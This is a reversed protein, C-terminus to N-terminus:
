KLQIELTNGSRKIDMKAGSLSFGGTEMRNDPGAALESLPATVAFAILKKERDILVPIVQKMQLEVGARFMVKIPVMDYIGSRQTIQTVGFPTYAIGIKEAFGEYSIKVLTQGARLIADLKKQIYARGDKEFQLKSRYADDYGYERKAQELYRKMEPESLAMSQKLMDGIYIGDKFIKDKWDPTVEDLLLAQCAGLEYLKFRLPGSGFKNGFRDDNVAVVNVMNNVRNQFEKALVGRYGNFGNRYYMERIPEVTDGTKSFKYEVYKATGEVYENLNEYEVCSSDLLSQRFSRVAVFEKIKEQRLSPETSLLADKLINGELVYLANNAPDLLPYRSIVMENANKEPAMRSQYVHFAEHLILALEDYPSPIFSWDKLWSVAFEKPRRTLVDQLRNRMSSFPDAVVLVPIGDIEVSTNQDDITFITSDNRFYITENGLPDFGVYESFGEPKHPFNILLEQVNPRYFLIPTKQFDWGPYLDRGLSNAINRCEKLSVLLMPDIKLETSQESFASSICIFPLLCVLRILSLHRKRARLKENGLNDSM